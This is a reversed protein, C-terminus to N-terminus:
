YTVANFKVEFLNVHKIKQNCSLDKIVICDDYLFINSHLAAIQKGDTKVFLAKNTNVKM